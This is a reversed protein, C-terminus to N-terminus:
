IVACTLLCVAAEQELIGWVALSLFLTSFTEARSAVVSSCNNALMVVKEQPTLHLTPTTALWEM